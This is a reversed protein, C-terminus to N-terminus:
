KIIVGTVVGGSNVSVLRGDNMAWLYKGVSQSKWLARPRGHAFMFGRGSGGWILHCQGYGKEGKKITVGIAGAVSGASKKVLNCDNQVVFTYKENRSYLKRFRVTLSIV